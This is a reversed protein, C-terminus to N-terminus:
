LKTKTWVLNEMDFTIKYNGAETIPINAGGDELTGDNGNDGYNVAWDNNLRFKIEGAVLAISSIEWVNDTSNWVMDTDNDWGGPTASGIIGWSYAELAYTLANTDVTLKQYGANPAVLNGGGNYVLTNGGDTGYSNDWNRATTIKFESNPETYNIYGIYIGNSTASRLAEATEPNWGQYAGPAYLFSELQYPTVKFTVVDSTKVITGGVSATTATVRVDIDSAVNAVAGTRLVAKDMAFNTVALSNADEVTGLSYFTSSGKAAIEVLYSVSVGYNTYDNWEITTAVADPNDQDLVLASGATPKTILPGNAPYTTVTFSIANSVETGREIRIYATQSSYPSLGAQLMATNLEGITTTFTNSTSTGLEVKTAFDETNSIVVSYTGGTTKSNDWRLIFPNNEMTPYFVAAGLTTDYLTFSPEPTTWDRDASRDCATFVFASVLAVLLYKFINKMFNKNFIIPILM